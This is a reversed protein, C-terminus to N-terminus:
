IENLRKLLEASEKADMAELADGYVRAETQTHLRIENSVQRIVALADDVGEQIANPNQSLFTHLWRTHDCITEHNNVLEQLDGETGPLRKSIEVFFIEEEDSFHALIEDLAVELDEAACELVDAEDAAKADTAALREFTLQIDDFLQTLHRHEAQIHHIVDKRSM